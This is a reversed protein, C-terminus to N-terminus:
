GTGQSPLLIHELYRKLNNCLMVLGRVHPLRMHGAGATGAVPPLVRPNGTALMVYAVRWVNM